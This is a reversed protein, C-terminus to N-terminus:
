GQPAICVAYVTKTTNIDTFAQWGQQGAGTLPRSQIAVPQIIADPITYGGGTVVMGAPCNVTAQNGSATATVIQSQVGVLGGQAGQSGQSGQAGQAGQVGQAGQAGADGQAGQAGSAGQAGTDGQAGQVGQPGIDGQAGQPGQPGLGGPAGQV